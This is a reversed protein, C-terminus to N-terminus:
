EESTFPPRQKDVTETSYRGKEMGALSEEKLGRWGVGQAGRGAKGPSLRAQPLVLHTM